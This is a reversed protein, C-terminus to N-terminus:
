IGRREEKDSRRGKRSEKEVIEAALEPITIAGLLFVMAFEGKRWNEETSEWPWDVTINTGYEEKVSNSPGLPSDFM